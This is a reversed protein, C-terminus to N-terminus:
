CVLVGREFAFQNIIYCIEEVTSDPIKEMIREPTTLSEEILCNRVKIIKEINNYKTYFTTLINRYFFTESTLPSYAVITSTAEAKRGFTPPAFATKM